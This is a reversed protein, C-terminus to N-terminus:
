AATPQPDLPRKPTEKAPSNSKPRGDLFVQMPTRGKMGRGQHPRKENYTVLYADLATQMEEVTEFWTRRGEVRFHEDLLTRHLREVIGNSQPRKVKTLRHDIGELQLFLEYPHRDPRGCFERGNDSLVVEITADAAEFAPLVDENLLHVATIPLKSTYLRAWARRSHCDIATQLWVKGVGKLAGVFFTDVAVLSGTHPAEIHRERFEPSFRELLRVQEESLELRREATVKELRLLREHKTLLGHRMWVGRIGGASVQIGKLRLEQEVRLQGHCPHELAHDLVAQEIEASVRNPHPGKPGPLRDLLGEAGYTQFNRRIEYFQQRSYGMIACARSVNGLEKALQLMSLKRRAIKENTTM